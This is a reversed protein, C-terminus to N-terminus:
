GTVLDMHKSCRVGKRYSQDCILSPNYPIRIYAEATLAM